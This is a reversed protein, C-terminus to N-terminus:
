AEVGGREALVRGDSFPSVGGLAFTGLIQIVDRLEFDLKSSLLTGDLCLKSETVLSDAGDKRVARLEEKEGSSGAAPKSNCDVSVWVWLWYSLLAFHAEVRDAPIREAALGRVSKISFRSCLIEEERDAEKDRLSIPVGM